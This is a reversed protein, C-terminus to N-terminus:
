HYYIVAELSKQDCFSYIKRALFDEDLLKEFDTKNQECEEASASPIRMQSIRGISINAIGVGERYGDGLHECFNYRVGYGVANFATHIEPLSAECQDRTDWIQGLAKEFRLTPSITHLISLDYVGNNLVCTSFLSVYGSYTLLQKEYDPGALQCSELDSFRPLASNLELTQKYGDRGIILDLFLYSTNPYSRCSGDVWGFSTESINKQVQELLKECDELNSIEYNLQRLSENAKATYKAKIQFRGYSEECTVGAVKWGAQIFNKTLTPKFDACSEASSFSRGYYTEIYPSAFSVSFDLLVLLLLFSILKILGHM